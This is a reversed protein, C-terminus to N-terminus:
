NNGVKHKIYTLIMLILQIYQQKIKSPLFFIPIILLRFFSWGGNQVSLRFLYPRCHIFAKCPHIHFVLEGFRLPKLFQTYTPSDDIRVSFRM